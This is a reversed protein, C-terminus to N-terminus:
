HSWAEPNIVMGVVATVLIACSVEESIELRTTALIGSAALTRIAMAKPANEQEVKEASEKETPTLPKTFRGAVTMLYKQLALSDAMIRELSGVAWTQYEKMLDFGTKADCMRQAATLAAQTGVHRREIWGNTFEEISGLVQDQSNWFGELNTRMTQRIEATPQVM